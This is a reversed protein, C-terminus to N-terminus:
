QGLLLLALVLACAVLNVLASSASVAWGSRKVLMTFKSLLPASVGRKRTARVQVVREAVSGGAFYLFHGAHQAVESLVTSFSACRGPGAGAM